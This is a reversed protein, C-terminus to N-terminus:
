FGLSRAAAQALWVLPAPYVGLFVIVATSLGLATAPCALGVREAGAPLVDPRSYLAFVVRLYYFASMGTNVVGVILLWWLGAQAAASFIYFKAFFGSTLPVGILSLMSIALVASLVPRRASLGAYDALDEIDGGPKHASMVSVVGFAAMAAAMYTVLYFVASPAGRSGASLLPIFLYGMQAVSSYALLRKVNRQTLALLNGVSMTAVALVALATFVISQRELGAAVILRLVLAFVAGKSGTAILATVPAPAGQYVDPSWTHFPAWALKFGFGVLVLGFGFLAVVGLRPIMAILRAFDMAGAEFYILAIGFLLIASSVAAMVLYKIGAELSQSQTRTYGILGYLSVSLTELGLFFSVFHSSSAIVIMGVVSFMLLIHFGQSNKEHTRLYQGSLLAVLLAAAIIIGSFILSYSDVALLSAVTRPAYDAVVFLCAFSAVLAAITFWHALRPGRVFAVICMLMAGAYAPILVPLISIIDSGSM